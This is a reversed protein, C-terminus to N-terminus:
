GKFKFPNLKKVLKLIIYEKYWVILQTFFMCFIFIGMVVCYIVSILVNSSSVVFPVMYLCLIQVCAIFFTILINMFIDFTVPITIKTM